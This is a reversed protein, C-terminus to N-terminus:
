TLQLLSDSVAVRVQQGSILVQGEIAAQVAAAEEFEVFAFSDKGRQNKLNVGKAGGKVVGFRSFAEELKEATVDPPFNNVFISTCPVDDQFFRRM